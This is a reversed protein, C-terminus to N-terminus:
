AYRAQLDEFGVIRSLERADKRGALLDFFLEEVKEPLLEGEDLRFTKALHGALAGAKLIFHNRLEGLELLDAMMVKGAVSLSRVTQRNDNADALQVEVTDGKPDMRIKGSDEKEAQGFYLAALDATTLNWLELDPQASVPEVSYASPMTLYVRGALLVEPANFTGIVSRRISLKGMAFAGGMVVCDELDIEEAMVSGSVFCNRLSIKRASLDGHFAARGGALLAAITGSCGVAKKFLIRQKTEPKIHIEGQAFVAGSVLLPGATVYLNRAYIAGNVVTEGDVSVDRSLEKAVTPLIDSEVLNNSLSVKNENFNVTKLTNM